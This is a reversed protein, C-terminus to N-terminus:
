FRSRIRMHRHAHPPEDGHSHHELVEEVPTLSVTGHRVGREQFLARAYAAIRAVPGRVITVDMTDSHNVPVSATFIIQDHRLMRQDRLRRTMEAMSQDVACSIVAICDAEAETPPLAALGRRVLDRIAESRNAVNASAIHHDLAKALEPDLTITTRIM